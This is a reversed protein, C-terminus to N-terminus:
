SNIDDKNTLTEILSILSGISIVLTGTGFLSGTIVHNSMLLKYSTYIFLVTIAIFGLMAIVALLVKVYVRANELHRRHSTEGLGNNIIKRAAGPYIVDFEKLISPHPIPGTYMELTPILENKQEETLGSITELIEPNVTEANLDDQNNPYHSM